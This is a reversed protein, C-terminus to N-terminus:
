RGDTTGEGVEATPVVHGLAEASPWVRAAVAALASGRQEISVEGWQPVAAIGVNLLISSQKAFEPQKDAWGLNSVSGNFHQTVLTLNGIRNKALNRADKAKIRDVEDLTEDLPWRCDGSDTSLTNCM